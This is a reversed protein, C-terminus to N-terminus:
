SINGTIVKFHKEGIDERLKKICNIIQSITLGQLQDKHSIVKDMIGKVFEDRSFEYIDTLQILTDLPFSAGTGPPIYFVGRQPNCGVQYTFGKLKSTTRVVLYPDNTNKAPNSLVIFLKQGITGDHYPFQDHYYIDGTPSM